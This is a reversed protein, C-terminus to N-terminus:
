ARATTTTSSRSALVRPATEPPRGRAAATMVDFQGAALATFREASTVPVIEVADADGLVAAAVVRCMDVDFGAHTGDPPAFAFGPLDDRSGCLLYGRDLVVQLTETPPPSM